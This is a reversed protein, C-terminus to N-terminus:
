LLIVNGGFPEEAIHLIGAELAAELDGDYSQAGDVFTFVTAAGNEAGYMTVNTGDITETWTQPFDTTPRDSLPATHTSTAKRVTLMTAPTEYVAQAIGGGYSFKPNAFSLDGITFNGPAGFTALGAGKAAEDATAVETWTTAAAGQASTSTTTAATAAPASSTAASSAEKSDGGSGCGALALSLACMLAFPILKKM